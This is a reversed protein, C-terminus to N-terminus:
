FRKHNFSKSLFLFNILYKSTSIHIKYNILYFFKLFIHDIKISTNFILEFFKFHELLRM